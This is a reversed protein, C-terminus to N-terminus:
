PSCGCVPLGSGPHPFPRCRSPWRGAYFEAEATTPRDSAPALGLSRLHQKYAAGYPTPTGAAYSTILAPEAACSSISWAWGLYSIGHQDAFRLYPPYLTDGCDHEGFEGTVIPVKASLPALVQHWCTAAYCPSWDPDSRNKWYVHISAAIQGLPDHPEYEVWHDLDGAFQPGGSLVVNRAQTGRVANLLQQLGAARYGFGRCTGGPSGRLVCKWAAASDTNSNPYPENFLDFIVAPNHKFAGAVSTWFRPAYREDPMPEQGTAQRSGGTSSWHLSLIVYMGAANLAAVYKEIAHQYATGSVNKKVGQVGLWCSENLQVRAANFGWSRMAAISAPSAEQKGDFISNQSVCAYETGSTNVGRLIVTGGSADVLHRGSVAISLGPGAPSAGALAPADGAPLVAVALALRLWLACIM